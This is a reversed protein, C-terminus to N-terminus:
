TVSLTIAPLLRLFPLPLYCIAFISVRVKESGVLFECDCLDQSIFLMEARDRVCSKKTQWDEEM